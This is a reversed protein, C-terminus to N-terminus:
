FSNGLMKGLVAKSCNLDNSSTQNLLSKSIIGNQEERCSSVGIQFSNCAKQLSTKELSFLRVERFREGWTM